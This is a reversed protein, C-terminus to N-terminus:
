AFDDKTTQLILKMARTVCISASPDEKLIAIANWTAM